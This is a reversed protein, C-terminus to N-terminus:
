DPKSPPESGSSATDSEARGRAWQTWWLLAVGAGTALLIAPAVQATGVQSLAESAAKAQEVVTKASVKRAFPWMRALRPQLLKPM